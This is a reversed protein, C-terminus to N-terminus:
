EHWVKKRATFSKGATLYPADDEIAPVPPPPTQREDPVLATEETAKVPTASRSTVDGDSKEGKCVESLDTVSARKRMAKKLYVAFKRLTTVTM